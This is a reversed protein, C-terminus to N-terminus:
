GGGDIAKFFDGINSELEEKEDNTSSDKSPETGSGVQFYEVTLDALQKPSLTPQMSLFHKQLGQAIGSLATEGFQPHDAVLLDGAQKITVATIADESTINDDTKGLATKASAVAVSSGQVYGSRGVHNVLDLVAKVGEEGLKEGLPELVEKPLNDTFNLKEAAKTFTEETADLITPKKKVPEVYDEDGPKPEQKTSNDFLENFKDLPSSGKEKNKAQDLATGKNNEDVQDEAKVPIEVEKGDGSMPSGDKNEAPKGFDKMGAFSPGGSTDFM